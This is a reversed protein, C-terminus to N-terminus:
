FFDKRNEVAEQLAYQDLGANELEEEFDSDLHVSNGSFIYRQGTGIIKDNVIITINMNDTDVVKEIRVKITNKKSM